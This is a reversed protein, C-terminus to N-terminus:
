SINNQISINQYIDKVRQIHKIGQYSSSSYLPDAIYFQAFYYTHLIVDHLIDTGLLQILISMHSPHCVIPERLLNEILNRGSPSSKSTRHFSGLRCPTSSFISPHYNGSPRRSSLRCHCNPTASRSAASCLRGFTPTNM